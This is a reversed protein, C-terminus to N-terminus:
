FLNTITEQFWDDRSKYFQVDEKSYRTHFFTDPSVPGLSQSVLYLGSDALILNKDTNAKEPQDVLYIDSLHIWPPILRIDLITNIPLFTDHTKTFAYVGMSFKPFTGSFNRRFAKTVGPHYGNVYDIQKWQAWLDRLRWLVPVKVLELDDGAVIGGFKSKKKALRMDLNVSDFAHSGDIWFFDVSEDELKSLFKDSHMRVQECLTRDGFSELNIKFSSEVEGNELASSMELYHQSYNGKTLYPTFPDVSILKFSNVIGKQIAVKGILTVLCASAGVWSGVEVARFVSSGRSRCLELQRILLDALLAYRHPPSQNANPGVLFNAM